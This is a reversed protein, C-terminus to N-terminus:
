SDPLTREPTGTQHQLVRLLSRPTGPGAISQGRYAALAAESVSQAADGLLKRDAEMQLRLSRLASLTDQTKLVLFDFGGIAKSLAGAKNDALLKREEEPLSSLLEEEARERNAELQQKAAAAAQIRAELKAKEQLWMEQEQRLRALTAILRQERVRNEENERCPAYETPLPKRLKKIQENM